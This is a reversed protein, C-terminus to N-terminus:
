GPPPSTPPSEQFPSVRTRQFPSFVGYKKGQSSISPQNSKIQNTKIQNSKNQNSKIQNTKISQNISQNISPNISYNFTTLITSTQSQHAYLLIEISRWPLMTKQLRLFIGTSFPMSCRNCNRKPLLGRKIQWLTTKHCLCCDVPLTTLVTPMFRPDSWCFWRIPCNFASHCIPDGFFSLSSM